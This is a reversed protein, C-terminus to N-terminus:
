QTLAACRRRVWKQFAMGASLWILFLAAGPEPVAVVNDVSLFFRNDSVFNDNVDFIGSEVFGDGGGCICEYIEARLTYDMDVEITQGPALTFSFPVIGSREVYGGFGAIPSDNEENGFDTDSRIESEFVQPVATDITLDLDSDMMAGVFESSSAFVAHSYELILDVRYAQTPSSNAFSLWTSNFTGDLDIAARLDVDPVVFAPEFVAEARAYAEGGFGDGTLGGGVGGGNGHHTLTAAIVDVTDALDDTYGFTMDTGGVRATFEGDQGADDGFIFSDGESFGLTGSVVVDSIIMDGLCIPTFFLAILLACLQRGTKSTMM